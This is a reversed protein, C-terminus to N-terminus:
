RGFRDEPHGGAAARPHEVLLVVDPRKFDPFSRVDHEYSVRRAPM